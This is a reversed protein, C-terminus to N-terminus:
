THSHSFSYIFVQQCVPTFSTVKPPINDEERLEVPGGYFQYQSIVGFVIVPSTFEVRTMVSLESTAHDISFAHISHM